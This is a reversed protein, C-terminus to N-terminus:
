RSTPAARRPPRAWAAARWRRAARARARVSRSASTAVSTLDLFDLPRELRVGWAHVHVPHRGGSLSGSRQPRQRRHREASSPLRPRDTRTGPARAPAPVPARPSASCLRSRRADRPSPRASVRSTKMLFRGVLAARRPISKFPPARRRRNSVRTADGSVGARLGRADHLLVRLVREGGDERLGLAARAAIGTGSPPPPPASSPSSSVDFAARPAPSVGDASSFPAAGAVGGLAAVPRSARRRRRSVRARAESSARRSWRRTCSSRPRIRSLARRSRPQFLPSQLLRGADAPM